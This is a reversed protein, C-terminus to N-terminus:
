FRDPYFEQSSCIYFIYRVYLRIPLMWQLGGMMGGGACVVREGDVGFDQALVANRAIMERSEGMRGTASTNAAATGAVAEVAMTLRPSVSGPIGIM